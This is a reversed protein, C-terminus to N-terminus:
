GRVFGNFVTDPPRQSEVRLDLGQSLPITLQLSDQFVYFTRAPRAKGIGKEEKSFVM